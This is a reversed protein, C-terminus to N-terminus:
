LEEKLILPPTSLSKKFEEFESQDMYPINKRSVPIEKSKELSKNTYIAIFTTIALVAFSLYILKNLIVITM